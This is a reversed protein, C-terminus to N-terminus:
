TKEYVLSQWVRLPRKHTSARVSPRFEPTRSILQLDQAKRIAAGMARPEKTPMRILPWVMDTTFEPYHHAVDNIKKLTYAIWLHDTM